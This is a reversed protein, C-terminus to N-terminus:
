RRGELGALASPAAIHTGRNDQDGARQSSDPPRRSKRERPFTVAGNDGTAVLFGALVERSLQARWSSPTRFKTSRVTVRKPRRSAATWDSFSRFLATTPWNKLAPM